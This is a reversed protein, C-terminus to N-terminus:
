NLIYPLISHLYNAFYEANHEGGDICYYYLNNNKKDLGFSFMDTAKMAEIQPGLNPQAMDGTGTMSFVFFDKSSYGQTKVSESLAEALDEPSPRGEEVTLSMYHGSCPIFTRFYKMNNAFVSWTTASGMSFGTFYRHDRSAVLDKESTGKAYTSYKGEVLPILTEGLEKQFHDVCATVRPKGDVYITPMVLITPPIEGSAMMHDFMHKMEKPEEQTGLYFTNNAQGGHMIYIVEYKRSQSYGYPLYVYASKEAVDGDMDTATYEVRELTGAKACPIKYESPVPEYVFEKPTKESCSALVLAAAALLLFNIKM